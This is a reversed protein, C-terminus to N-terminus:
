RRGLGLHEPMRLLLGGSLCGGCGEWKVVESVLSGTWHFNDLDVGLRAMEQGWRDDRGLRPNLDRGRREIRQAGGSITALLVARLEALAEPPDKLATLM